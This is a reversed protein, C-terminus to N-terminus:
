YRVRKKETCVKKFKKGMTGKLLNRLTKKYLLNGSEQDWSQDWYPGRLWALWFRKGLLRPCLCIWDAATPLGTIPTNRPGHNEVCSCFLVSISLTPPCSPHPSLRATLSQSFLPSRLSGESIELDQERARSPIQAIGAEPTQSNARFDKSTYPGPNWTSSIVKGDLQFLHETM